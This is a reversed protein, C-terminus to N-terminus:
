CKPQEPPPGRGGRDEPNSRATPSESNRECGFSACCIFHRQVNEVIELWFTDEARNEKLSVSLRQSQRLTQTLRDVLKQTRPARGHSRVPAVALSLFLSWLPVTAAVTYSSDASVSHQGSAPAMDPELPLAKFAPVLPAPPTLTLPTLRGGGGRRM